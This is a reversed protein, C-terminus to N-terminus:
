RARMRPPSGSRRATELRREAFSSSPLCLTATNTPESFTPWRGASTSGPSSAVTLAQSSLSATARARPLRSAEHSSGPLTVKLTSRASASWSSETGAGSGEASVPRGM